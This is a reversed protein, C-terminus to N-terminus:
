GTPHQRKGSGLLLLIGSEIEQLTPGIGFRVVSEFLAQKSSAYLYLTGKAVGAKRAIEDLRAEAFGKQSFEELAAQLILQLKQQRDEETRAQRRPAERKVGKGRNTEAQETNKTM